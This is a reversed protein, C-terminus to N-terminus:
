VSLSILHKQKWSHPVGVGFVLSRHVYLAESGVGGGQSYETVIVLAMELLFAILGPIFTFSVRLIALL